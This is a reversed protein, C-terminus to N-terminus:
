LQDDHSRRSNANKTGWPGVAVNFGSVRKFQSTSGCFSNVQKTQEFIGRSEALELNEADGTAEAVAIVEAGSDDKRALQAPLQIVGHSFKQLGVFQDEPDAVPKLRDQFGAQQHSATDLVECLFRQFILHSQGPVGVTAVGIAPHPQFDRGAVTHEQFPNIFEIDWHSMSFTSDSQLM